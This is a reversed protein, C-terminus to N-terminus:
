DKRYSKTLEFVETLIDKEVQNFEIARRQMVKEAVEFVKSLRYTMYGASGGWSFSSVFNRPFGAGFVNASVGVVTGTNFMTNIGSKSHDGAVLGCYQTGTDELSESEYSWSKVTGYNNKLNSSNTDAGFNCWYGIVSNGIFGDHAKNSFGQFVVNSIEGGIKCYPGITTPGYIKAGMKIVSNELAVFPGRINSGEMIEVDKSIYIPGDYSNLTAGSIIAGEEIYVHDGIIL